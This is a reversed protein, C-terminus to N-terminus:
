KNAGAGGPGNNVSQFGPHDSIQATVSLPVVGQPTKNEAIVIANLPRTAKPDFGIGAVSKGGEITNHNFRLSGFNQGQDLSCWIGARQDNKLVCNVVELRLLRNFTAVGNTHGEIYCNKVSTGVGEAQVGHFGSRRLDCHDIICRHDDPYWVDSQQGGQLHASYDEPTETKLSAGANDWSTCFRVHTPAGKGAYPIIGSHGMREVICQEILAGDYGRTHPAWFGRVGSNGGADGWGDHIWVGYAHFDWAEESGRIAAHPVQDPSGGIDGLQLRTLWTGKDLSHWINGIKKGRSDMRFNDCWLNHSREFELLCRWRSLFGQSDVAYFGTEWGEGKITVNELGKLRTDDKLGYMGKLDLTGGAAIANMAQRLADTSDRGPAGGFQELTVIPGRPSPTPLASIDLGNERVAPDAGVDGNPPPPEVPPQPPETPPEVPEGESFKVLLRGDPLAHAAMWDTTVVAVM